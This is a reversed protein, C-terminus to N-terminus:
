EAAPKEPSAPAITATLAALAANVRAQTSGSDPLNGTSSVLVAFLSTARAMDADTSSGAGLAVALNILSKGIEDAVMQDFLKFACKNLSFLCAGVKDITVATIPQEAARTLPKPAEKTLTDKSM